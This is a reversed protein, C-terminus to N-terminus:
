FQANCHLCRRNKMALCCLIGVPFFVIACCIGLCTYDYELIGVRCAPCPDSNIVQTHIVINAPSSVPDNPVPSSITKNYNPQPQPQTLYPNYPPTSNMQPELAGAAVNVSMFSHHVLYSPLYIWEGPPASPTHQPAAIAQSYSPPPDQYM